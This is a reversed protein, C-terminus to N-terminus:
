LVCLPESYVYEECCDQLRNEVFNENVRKKTTYFYTIKQSESFSRAVKIRFEREVTPLQNVRIVVLLRLKRFFLYYSAILPQLFASKIYIIM